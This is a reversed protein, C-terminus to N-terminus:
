VIDFVFSTKCRFVVSSYKNDLVVYKPEAFWWWANSYLFENRRLMWITTTHQLEENTNLISHKSYAWWHQVSLWGPKTSNLFLWVMCQWLYNYSKVSITHIPKFGVSSKGLKTNYRLTGNESCNAILSNEMDQWFYHKWVLKKENGTPHMQGLVM